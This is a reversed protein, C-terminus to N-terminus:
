LNVKYLVYKSNSLIKMLFPERDLLAIYPLPAYIYNVGYKYLVSRRKISSTQDFFMEVDKQRMKAEISPITDELFSFFINCVSSRGAFNSSLSPVRINLPHLIVSHTPTSRLYRVVEMDDSNMTHYINNFRLTLFQVTTPFSLIIILMASLLYRKKFKVLKLLLYPVLLWFVILAQTSFWYANNTLLGQSRINMMESTFFGIFVFIFLFLIISDFKKKQIIDKLLYFCISRAGFTLLVYLMFLLPYFFWQVGPLGFLNLSRAFNNFPDFTVIINGAGERIILLDFAMLLAILVSVSCLIISKKKEEFFVLSVTGMVFTAVIVHYGMTSKFGYAAFILLGFILISSLKGSLDFEKLYIFSLFVVFLAPLYGNMTFLSWITTNFIFTWPFDHPVM